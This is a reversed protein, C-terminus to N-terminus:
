IAPGCWSLRAVSLYIVLSPFVAAAVNDVFLCHLQVFVEGQVLRSLSSGAASRLGSRHM